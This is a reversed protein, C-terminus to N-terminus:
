YRYLNLFAKTMTHLQNVEEILGHEFKDTNVKFIFQDFIARLFYFLPKKEWRHEWDFELWGTFSISVEGENLRVKRKDKDVVVERIGTLNIDATIVYKVYDTIRKYPEQHLFVDKGTQFAQEYNRKEHKTYGKERLWDDLMKYLDPASFLGSYSLNITDVVVRREVM